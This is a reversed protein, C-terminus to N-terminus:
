AKNELYKWSFGKYSKKKGSCTKSISSTCGNIKNAADSVSEFIEGTEVCLVKIKNKNVTKEISELSKKKGYMPHNVGTYKKRSDSIKDRSEKSLVRGRNALSILEKHSDSFVRGILKKSRKIKSELTQISGSQGEGGDTLNVLYGLNLDRRGHLAILDKELEFAAWEQLRDQIIEIVIGYKKSVKKWFNSRELSKYRTKIGKGVYFVAGTTAVKHVYVYFDVPEETFNCKM